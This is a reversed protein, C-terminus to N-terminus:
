VAARPGLARRGALFSSKGSGNPGVLAQFPEIDQAVYRLSRFGLAEIRTIM